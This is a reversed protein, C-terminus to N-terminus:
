PCDDDDRAIEDDRDDGHIRGCFSEDRGDDCDDDRGGDIAGGSIVDNKGYMYLSRYKVRKKVKIQGQSSLAVVILEVNM